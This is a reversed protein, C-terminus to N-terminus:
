LGLTEAKRGEKRTDRNRYRKRGNFNQNEGKENRSERGESWQGCYFCTKGPCPGARLLGCGKRNKEAHRISPANSMGWVKKKQTRIGGLATRWREDGEDCTRGCRKGVLRSWALNQGEKAGSKQMTDLEKPPIEKSSSSKDSGMSTCKDRFREGKKEKRV